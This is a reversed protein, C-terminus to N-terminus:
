FIFSNIQQAYVRSTIITILGTLDQRNMRDIYKAWNNLTSTSQVEGRSVGQIPGYSTRLTGM